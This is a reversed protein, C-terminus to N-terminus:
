QSAPMNKRIFQLFEDKPLPKSFYYGQIYGINLREMTECAEKTEIGESVIELKMGHIMHMAADMVYRAKDNEFYAQTMSRDFKVISVPMEVIYNLNSQGTGFDDLSFSVGYNLLMNMNELLTKKANSSASETIELNIQSPNVHFINMTRIYDSALHDYACQVMSLNVEIYHLGYQEINNEKIFQCVKKFVIKGLKIIMGNREAIPIFKGPPVLNGKEDRIRVLAEASTFRQERTSYIPQYFVEVADRNIASIMLEEMSKEQIMQDVVSQNVLCFTHDKLLNQRAYRLFSLLEEESHAISSDPIYIWAARVTSSYDKGWGQEFKHDIMQKTTDADYKNKFILIVEEDANKFVCTNKLSDLFNALEIRTQEQSDANLNQTYSYNLVLSLLTFSEKDGYLQRLYQLLANRNFLGTRRDINAEPNELSLYIIMIGLAGAYGVILLENHLLQIFAAIAWLLLWVWVAHIRRKNLFRKNRATQYVLLLMYLAVFIYTATVSPGETYLVVGTENEHYRIPLLFIILSDIAGFTLCFYQIKKTSIKTSYIDSCVYIMAFVVTLPLTVIYFKAVFAVFWSPLIARRDIVIISSIDLCLCLIACCALRFFAQETHLHVKKQRRFFYLLVLIMVIGCCQALASM